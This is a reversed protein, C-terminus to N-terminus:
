GISHVALAHKVDLLFCVGQFSHFVEIELSCFFICFFPFFLIYSTDILLHIQQFQLIEFPFYIGNPDIIVRQALHYRNILILKRIRLLASKIQVVFCM